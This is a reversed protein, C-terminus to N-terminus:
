KRMPNIWSWEMFLKKNKVHKHCKDKLWVFVNVKKGMTWFTRLILKSPNSSKSFSNNRLIAHKKLPWFSFKTVLISSLQLKLAVIPIFTRLSLHRIVNKWPVMPICSRNCSIPRFITRWSYGLSRHFHLLNHFGSSTYLTNHLSITLALIYSNWHCIKPLRGHTGHSSMHSGYLLVM